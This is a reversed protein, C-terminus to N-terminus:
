RSPWSIPQSQGVQTPAGVRICQSWETGASWRNEFEGILSYRHLSSRPRNCLTCRRIMAELLGEFLDEWEIVPGVYGREQVFRELAARSEDSIWEDSQAQQCTDCMAFEFVSEGGVITKRVRYDINPSAFPRACVICGDFPLGSYASRFLARIDDSSARHDDSM